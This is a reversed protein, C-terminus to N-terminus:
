PLNKNKIVFLNSSLKEPFEVDSLTVTIKQDLESKVEMRIFQIPNLSFVLSFEGAEKRDKKLLSVTLQNDKKSISSVEIDDSNFSINKRTLFSAPTTNTPIHSIEDLELDQYTLVSGNVVVLIKPSEQYEIRMKGPRSLYFKGKAVGGESTQQIFNASLNKISNLYSEVQALNERNDSDAASIPFASSFYAFLSILLLKATRKIMSLISETYTKANFFRM